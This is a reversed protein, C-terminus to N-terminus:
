AVAKMRAPMDLAPEGFSVRFARDRLALRVVKSAVSEPTRRGQEWAQVTQVSYGLWSAFQDQNMKLTTRVTKIEEPTAPLVYRKKRIHRVEELPKGAALDRLTERMRPSVIPKKM